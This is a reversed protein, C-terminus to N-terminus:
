LEEAARKLTLIVEEATRDPQDNWDAVNVWGGTHYLYGTFAERGASESGSVVLLAGAACVSGDKERMMGQTWGHESIYEAAAKLTAQVDTKRPAGQM